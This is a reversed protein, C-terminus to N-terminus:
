QAHPGRRDPRSEHARRRGPGLVRQPRVPNLPSVAVGGISAPEAPGSDFVTAGFEDRVPNVGHLVPGLLDGVYPIPDTPSATAYVHHRNDAPDVGALRLDQVHDVDIGPSAVLVVDDAALSPPPPPM